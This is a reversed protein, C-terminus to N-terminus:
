GGAELTPTLRLSRAEWLRARVGEGGGNEPNQKAIM